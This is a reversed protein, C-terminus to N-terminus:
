RSHVRSLPSFGIPGAAAAKAKNCQPMLFSTGIYLTGRGQLRLLAVPRPRHALTGQPTARQGQCERTIIGAWACGQPREWPVVFCGVISQINRTAM